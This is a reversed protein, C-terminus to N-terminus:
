FVSALEGFYGWPGLSLIYSLHILIGLVFEVSSDDNGVFTGEGV